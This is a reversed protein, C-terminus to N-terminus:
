ETAANGHETKWEPNCGTCKIWNDPAWIGREVVRGMDLVNEKLIPRRVVFEHIDDGIQLRITLPNAV